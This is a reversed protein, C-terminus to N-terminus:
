CGDTFYRATRRYHDAILAQVQDLRGALVADFIAQHEDHERRRMHARSAALRRYRLAQDYLQECFGLLVPSGCGALLAFHFHRHLLEWEPNEQFRDSHISRPTRALRHLALLLSEEWAATRREFAWALALSELDIRTRVLDELQAQSVEAVTFGRQDNHVVLGESSLRNLAERLPSAGVSYRERLQHMLLKQGPALVGGLVDARLQQHAQTTLSNVSDAAAAPNPEALTKVLM